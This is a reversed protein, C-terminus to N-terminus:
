TVANLFDWFHRKHHTVLCLLELAGFFCNSQELTQLGPSVNFLYITSSTGQVAHKINFDKAVNTFYCGIIKDPREALMM